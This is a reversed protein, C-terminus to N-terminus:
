KSEMVRTTQNVNVRFHQNQSLASPLFSPFSLSSLLLSVLPETAQHITSEPLPSEWARVLCHESPFLAPFQLFRDASLRMPGTPITLRFWLLTLSFLFHLQLDPNSDFWSGLFTATHSCSPWWSNCRDLVVM